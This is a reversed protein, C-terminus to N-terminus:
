GMSNQFHVGQAPSKGPTAQENKKDATYQNQNGSKPYTFFYCPQKEGSSKEGKADDGKVVV